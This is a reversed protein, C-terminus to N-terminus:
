QPNAAPAPATAPASAAEGPIAAHIPPALKFSNSTWWGPSGATGDMKFGKLAAVFSQNKESEQALKASLMNERAVGAEKEAQNTRQAFFYTGMSGAVLGTLTGLAAWIKLAGDVNFKIMATMMLIGILLLISIALILSTTESVALVPAFNM